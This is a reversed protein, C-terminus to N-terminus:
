STWRDVLKTLDVQLLSPIVEHGQSIALLKSFLRTEVEPIFSGQIGLRFEDYDLDDRAMILVMWNKPSAKRSKELSASTITSTLHPVQISTGPNPPSSEVAVRKPPSSQVLSSSKRKRTPRNAPKVNKRVRDRTSTFVKTPSSAIPSTRAM